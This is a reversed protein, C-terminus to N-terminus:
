VGAIGKPFTRTCNGLDNFPKFVADLFTDINTKFVGTQNNYIAPVNNEILDTYSACLFDFSGDCM